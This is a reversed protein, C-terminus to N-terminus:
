VLSQGVPQPRGQAVRNLFHAEAAGADIARQDRLQRGASIERGEAQYTKRYRDLTADWGLVKRGASFFSLDPSKWYGEMFTELRGTNWAEVQKDLVARIASIKETDVKSTKTTQSMGPPMQAGALIVLLSVARLVSSRQAPFPLAMKM